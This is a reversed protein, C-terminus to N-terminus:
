NEDADVYVNLKQGKESLEEISAHSIFDQRSLSKNQESTMEEVYSVDVDILKLNFKSPSIM